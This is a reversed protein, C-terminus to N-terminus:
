LSGRKQTSSASAYAQPPIALPALYSSSRHYACHPSLTPHAYPMRSLIHGLHYPPPRHHRLFQVPVICCQGLLFISVISYIAHSNIRVLGFGKESDEDLVITLRKLYIIGPRERLRPILVDLVNAHSKSDVKKHVVQNLAIVTYGVILSM